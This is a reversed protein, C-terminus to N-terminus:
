TYFADSKQIQLMELLKPNNMFYEYLIVYSM